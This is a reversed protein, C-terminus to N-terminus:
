GEVKGIAALRQRLTPHSYNWFAYLPHPWLNSANEKNLRLLASAMAEKGAARAAFADAEYEHRRSWASFLPGLFFTAPGSVLAFILMIAEKTREAFGFAAYLEGWGMLISLVWFGVFALLISVATMKLVHRRKEHGIEHALVALIEDEGMSSILTDFLVVRKVAGLGTFYANSHRSRKSGDMVFIGRMRFGLRAALEGIRDALTGAPLPTFKNFLPAILLPFIISLAINVLSFIAAAWLWWLGGTADMFAMLLALLPLGILASILAGKLGDFLWTRITSTNFGFRKEIGFTSWLSFPLSILGSALAIVVFFLAARVFDHLGSFGWGSVIGGLGADLLGFLGLAAVALTPLTTLPAELLGFRLRAMSYEGAKAAEEKSVSRALEPPVKGGASRVSRWNLYALFVGWLLDLGALALYLLLITTPNM